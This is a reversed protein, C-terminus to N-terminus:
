DRIIKKLKNAVRYAGKGDLAKQGKERLTSRMNYSEFLKNIKKLLVSKFDQEEIVLGIYKHEWIQEIKRDENNYNSTLFDEIDEYDEPLLFSITPVGTAILRYITFLDNSIGIDCDKLIHLLNKPDKHLIINNKGKVLQELKELYAYRNTAIVHIRLNHVSEDSLLTNIINSTTNHPDNQRVYVFIDKVFKKTKKPELEILENDLLCFETGLLLVQKPVEPYEFNHSALSGNIIVNSFTKFRPEDDIQIIRKLLPRYTKFYEATLNPIDVIINEINHKKFLGIVEKPDEGINLNNQRINKKDNKIDPIKFVNFGQNNIYNYTVDYKTFFYVDFYQKSLETALSITRVLYKIESDLSKVDVRVGIKPM